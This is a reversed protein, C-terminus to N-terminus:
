PYSTWISLIKKKTTEEENQYLKQEVAEKQVAAQNKQGFLNRFFDITEDNYYHRYM